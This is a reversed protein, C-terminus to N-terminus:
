YNLNATTSANPFISGTGGDRGGDRMDEWERGGERGGENEWERVGSEEKRQGENEWERM